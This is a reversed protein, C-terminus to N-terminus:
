KIGKKLAQKANAPERIIWDLTIFAGIPQMGMIRTLLEYSYGDVSLEPQQKKEVWLKFATAITEHFRSIKQYTKEHMFEPYGEEKLIAIIRNKEIM